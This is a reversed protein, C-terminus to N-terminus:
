VGVDDGQLTKKTMKLEDSSTVMTIHFHKLIMQYVIFCVFYSKGSYNCLMVTVM